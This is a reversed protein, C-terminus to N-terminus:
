PPGPLLPRATAAIGNHRFSSRSEQQGPQASGGAQITVRKALRDAYKRQRQVNFDGRSCYPCLCPRREHQRPMYRWGLVQPVMRVKRIESPHIAREVIVEFGETDPARMIEQTAENAACRRHPRFYHGVWVQEDDPLSFYI